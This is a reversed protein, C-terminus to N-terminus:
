PRLVKIDAATSIIPPWEGQAKKLYSLDIHDKLLVPEKVLGAKYMVDALTQSEKLDADTINLDIKHPDPQMLNPEVITIKKILEKSYRSERVFWDDTLQKHTTTYFNALLYAKLLRVILDSHALAFKKEIIIVGPSIEQDIIKGIKKQTVISTQPEWTAIAQVSKQQLATVQESPSINQLQALPESHGDWLHYKALLNLLYPHPGSGFPVGITKGKLDQPSNIGSDRGAIIALPQRILRAIIIWDQSKALLSITPVAGTNLCNINHTIAAENMETGFLFGTFHLDLNLKEAIDTHILAQAIEGSPAWATQWGINLCNDKSLKNAPTDTNSNIGCGSSFTSLM